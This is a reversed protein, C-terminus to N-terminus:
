IYNRKILESELNKDYHIFGKAQMRKFYQKNYFFAFIFNIAGSTLSSLIILLIGIVWENRSIPLFGNFMMLTWCYGINLKCSEGADNRLIVETQRNHLIYVGICVSIIFVSAVIVVINESFNM